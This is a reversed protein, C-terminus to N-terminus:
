PKGRAAADEAKTAAIQAIAARAAAEAELEDRTKGRLQSALAPDLGHRKCIETRDIM